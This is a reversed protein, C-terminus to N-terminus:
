EKRFYGLLRFLCGNLLVLAVISQLTAGWLSAEVFRFALASWCLMSCSIAFLRIRISRSYFSTLMLLLASVTLSVSWAWAHGGAQILSYLGHGRRPILLGIGLSLLFCGVAFEIGSARTHPGM